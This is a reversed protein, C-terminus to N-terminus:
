RSDDESSPNVDIVDEVDIDDEGLEDADEIITDDSDAPDIPLDEIEEPAPAVKQPKEEPAPRSRRSKTITEPDFVAACNPCVPPKKKMDYYRAGCQPCIRKQGWEPKAM